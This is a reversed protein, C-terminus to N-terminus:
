MARVWFLACLFNLFWCVASYEWGLNGGQFLHEVFVHAHLL